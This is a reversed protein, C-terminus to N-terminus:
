QIEATILKVKYTKNVTGDQNSGEEVKVLSGQCIITIDKDYELEKEPNLEVKGTLKLIKENIEM